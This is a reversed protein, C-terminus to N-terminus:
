SLRRYPGHQPQLFLLNVVADAFIDLARRGNKASRRTSRSNATTFSSRLPARVPGAFCQSCKHHLRALFIRILFSFFFGCRNVHEISQRPFALRRGLRTSPCFFSASTRIRHCRSLSSYSPLLFPCILKQKTVDNGRRSSLLPVHALSAWSAM